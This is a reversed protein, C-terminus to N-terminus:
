VAGARLTEWICDSLAKMVNKDELAVKCLIMTRVAQYEEDTPIRNHQRYLRKVQTNLQEWIQSAEVATKIKEMQADNFKKM